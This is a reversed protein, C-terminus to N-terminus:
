AKSVVKSPVYKSCVFILVITLVVDCALAPVYYMCTAVGEGMIAQSLQLFPSNIFTGVSQFVTSVSMAMALAGAPVVDGMIMPIGVGFCNMGVGVVFAAVLLVAVSGAQGGAIGLVYGVALLGTGLPLVSYKFRGYIKSFGLATVICGIQMIVRAVGAAVTSGGIESIVYSIESMYTSGNITQSVIYLICIVYAVAPIRAKAGVDPSTEAAGEDEAAVKDAPEPEKLFLLILVFSVAGVLYVAFVYTWDYEVVISCIMTAAMSGIFQCTSGYGLMKSREEDSGSIMSVYTQCLPTMFGAGFGMCLRSVMLAAFSMQHGIFFPLGGAVTFIGVAVLALAKYGIHKGALAGFLFSSIMMTLSVGNVLYSMTSSAVEPFAENITSLCSSIAAFMTCLVYISMLAVM